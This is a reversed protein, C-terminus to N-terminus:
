FDTKAQLLMLCFVEFPQLEFSEKHVKKLSGSTWVHQFKTCTNKPHNIVFRIQRNQFNQNRAMKPALFILFNLIAATKSSKQGRFHGFILVKLSGLDSKDSVMGLVCTGFKLMNPCTTRELLYM